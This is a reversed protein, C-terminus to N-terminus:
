KVLNYRPVDHYETLAYRWDYFAKIQEESHNLNNISLYKIYYDVWDSILRYDKSSAYRHYIQSESLPKLGTTRQYIFYDIMESISRFKKGDVEYTNDIAKMYRYRGDYYFEYIVGQRATLINIRECGNHELRQQVTFAM